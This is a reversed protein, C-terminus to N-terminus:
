KPLGTMYLIYGIIIPLSVNYVVKGVNCILSFISKFQTEAGEKYHYLDEHGTELQEISEILNDFTESITEMKEEFLIIKTQLEIHKDIIKEFKTDLKELNELLIKVREDVRSTSDYLTQVKNELSDNDNNNKRPGVM